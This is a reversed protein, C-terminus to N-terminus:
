MYSRKFWSNRAGLPLCIGSTGYTIFPMFYPITDLFIDSISEVVAYQKQRKSLTDRLRTNVQLVDHVNWFVQEIFDM